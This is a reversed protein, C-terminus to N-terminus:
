SWEIEYAQACLSQYSEGFVCECEDVQCPASRDVASAILRLLFVTVHEAPTM